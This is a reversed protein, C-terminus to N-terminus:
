RSKCKTGAHIETIGFSNQSYLISTGWWWPYPGSRCHCQGAVTFSSIDIIYLSIFNYPHTGQRNLILMYHRVCLYVGVTVAHLDCSRLVFYRWFRCLFSCFHVRHLIKQFCTATLLNFKSSIYHNKRKIEADWPM